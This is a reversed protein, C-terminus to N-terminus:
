SVKPPLSFRPIDSANAQTHVLPQRDLQSLKIRKIELPRQTTGFTSNVSLISSQNPPFMSVDVANPQPRQQMVGEGDFPIMSIEKDPDYNQIKQQLSASM